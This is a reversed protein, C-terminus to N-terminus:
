SSHIGRRCEAGKSKVKIVALSFLPISRLGAVTLKVIRQHSDGTCVFHNSLESSNGLATICLTVAAAAVVSFFVLVSYVAIAVFYSKNRRDTNKSVM